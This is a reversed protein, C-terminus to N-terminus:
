IDSTLDKMSETKGRDEEGKSVSTVSDGSSPSSGVWKYFINQVKHLYSTFKQCTQAMICKNVISTPMVKVLLMGCMFVGEQFM